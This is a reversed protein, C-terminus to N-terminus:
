FSLSYGLQLGNNVYYLRLCDTNDASYASNAKNKNRIGKYTVWILDAVWLGVGVRTAIFYKNQANNAKTYLSQIDSNITSANYEKYYKNAQSKQSIGYVML